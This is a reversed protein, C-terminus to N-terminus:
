RPDGSGDARAQTSAGADEAAYRALLRREEDRRPFLLSVVTAGLLVAVIGATYAWDDGALFSEKAAATIQAGYKPYHQAVALAGDFSKQLEAAVDDTVM